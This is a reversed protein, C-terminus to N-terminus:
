ESGFFEGVLFILVLLGLATTIFVVISRDKSKFIALLSLVLTTLGSILSGLGTLILLPRQQFEFRLGDGITVIDKYITSSLVPALVVLVIFSIAFIVAWKGLKSTPKFKM